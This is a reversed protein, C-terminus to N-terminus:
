KLLKNTPSNPDFLNPNLAEAWRFDMIWQVTKGQAKGEIKIQIPLETETDVWLQGVSSELSEGNTPPDKVEIGEAWVGDIISRGLKKYPQSMFQNIYERPDRYEEPMKDSMDTPLPWKIFEKEGPIVLIMENVNPAVYWSVLDENAGIDMRFGYEESLYVVWKATIQGTTDQSNPDSVEITLGFM